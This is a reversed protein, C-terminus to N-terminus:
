SRSSSPRVMRSVAFTSPTASPVTFAWSARARVFSLSSPATFAQFVVEQFLWIRPRNRCEDIRSRRCVSLADGPHVSGDTSQPVVAGIVLSVPSASHRDQKSVRMCHIPSRLEFQCTASDVQIGLFYVTRGFELVFSIERSPKANLLHNSIPSAPLM